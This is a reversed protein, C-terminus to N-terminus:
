IFSRSAQHPGFLHRRLYLYQAPVSILAYATITAVVAGAIGIAAVLYWKLVFAALAMPIAVIMQFRIVNSANLMTGTVNGLVDMVAWIALAAVLLSATSYEVGVWFASIDNFLLYAALALIISAGAGLLLSKVFTAKVWASDGRAVADSYAPWFAGLVTGVGVSIIQFLRQAVSYEAVAEPGLVRLIVLYDSQYAFAVALQLVLFLLGTRLLNQIGDRTALALRPRLDRRRILYWVTNACNCLVQAGFLCTVLIWLDAALGIAIPVSAITLAAGAIQWCSAIYGEQMGWQIKQILAGPLNVLFLVAFVLSATAAARIHEPDTLRYVQAVSIQGALIAASMGLVIAFGILWLYASSVMASLGKSDGRARASAVANIVGNGIGLDAFALFGVFSSLTMWIGFLTPGLYQYAQPVTLLTVMVTGLRAVVNAGALLLAGRTRQEEIPRGM